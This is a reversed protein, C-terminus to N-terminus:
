KSTILHWLGQLAMLAGSFIWMGKKRTEKLSDIDKQQEHNTHILGKIGNEEDGYVGRKVTNVEKALGAVEKSVGVIMMKVEEFGRDIHKRDAQTMKDSEKLEKNQHIIILIPFVIAPLCLCAIGFFWLVPAIEMGRDNDSDLNYNRGVCEYYITKWFLLVL